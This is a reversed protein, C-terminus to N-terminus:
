TESTGPDFELYPERRLSERISIWVRRV